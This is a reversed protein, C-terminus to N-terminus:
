PYKSVYAGYLVTFNVGLAALADGVDPSLPAGGFAQLSSFFM